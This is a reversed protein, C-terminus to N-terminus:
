EVNIAIQPRDPRMVNKWMIEFVYTKGFLIGFM